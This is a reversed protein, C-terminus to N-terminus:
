AFAENRIHCALCRQCPANTPTPDYCSFTIELPAKLAKGLSVIEKKHMHILPTIIRPPHGEAAQKTAYIAMQQFAEYFVPRCDPYPGIDQANPGIHIEEADHIEAQGLAYALFLANRAPVQTSPVKTTDVEKIHNFKPVDGRILSTNEFASPDINIIKQRVNYHRAVREAAQLEIRHRQGYDFGIALCERGEAIAKALMVTSDVGGSLLIIAKM